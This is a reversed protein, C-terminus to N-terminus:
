LWSSSYQPVTRPMFSSLMWNSLYPFRCQVLLLWLSCSDSTQQSKHMNKSSSWIKSRQRCKKKKRKKCQVNTFSQIEDININVIYFRYIHVPFLICVSVTMNRFREFTVDPAKKQTECVLCLDKRCSVTQAQTDMRLRRLSPSIHVPPFFNICKPSNLKANQMIQDTDTRSGRLQEGQFTSAANQNTADCRAQPLLPGSRGVTGPYVQLLHLTQHLLHASAQRRSSLVEHVHHLELLLHSSFM